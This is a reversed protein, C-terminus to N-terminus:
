TCSSVEVRVNNQIEFMKIKSFKQFVGKHYFQILAYLQIRFNPGGEYIDLNHLRPTLLRVGVKKAKEKSTIILPM